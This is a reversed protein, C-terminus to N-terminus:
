LLYLVGREATVRSGQRTELLIKFIDDDGIVGIGLVLRINQLLSTEETLCLLKDGVHSIECCNPLYQFFPISVFNFDHIDDNRLDLLKLEVLRFM